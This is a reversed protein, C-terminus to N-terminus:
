GVVLMGDYAGFLEYILYIVMSVHRAIAFVWVCCMVARYCKVMMVRTIKELKFLVTYTYRPYM